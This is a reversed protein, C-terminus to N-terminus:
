GGASSRNLTRICIAKVHEHNIQYKEVSAWTYVIQLAVKMDNAFRLADLVDACGLKDLEKQIQKEKYAASTM